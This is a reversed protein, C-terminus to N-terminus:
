ISCINFLYRLLDHRTLFSFCLVRVFFLLHLLLSRSTGLVLSSDLGSGVGVALGLGVVGMM